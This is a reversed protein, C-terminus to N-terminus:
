DLSVKHDYFRRALEEAFLSISRYMVSQEASDGAPTPGHEPYVVNLESQYSPKDPNVSDMEYVRVDATIYGRLLNISQPEVVTFEIMDLYLIRDANFMKGLDRIPLSLWDLDERQFKDISEADVFQVEDIHRALVDSSALALNVNASPYEFDVGAATAVFIAVRKSALGTYEAKVKKSSQGFITYVAHEFLNCGALMSVLVVLSVVKKM